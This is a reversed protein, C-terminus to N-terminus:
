MVGQKCPPTPLHGSHIIPPAPAELWPGWRPDAGLPGLLTCALAIGARLKLHVFAGLCGGAAGPEQM